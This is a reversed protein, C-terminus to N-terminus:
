RMKGLLTRGSALGWTLPLMVSLELAVQRVGGDFDGMEPFAEVM